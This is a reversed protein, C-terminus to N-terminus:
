LLTGKKPVRFTIVRGCSPCTHKYLGPKLVIMTAPAHDPDYCPSPPEWDDDVRETPM